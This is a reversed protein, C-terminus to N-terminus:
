QGQETLDRGVLDVFRRRLNRSDVYQASFMDSLDVVIMDGHETPLPDSRNDAQALASMSEMYVALANQVYEIEDLDLAITFPKIETM